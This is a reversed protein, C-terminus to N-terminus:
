RLERASEAHGPLSHADDDPLLVIFRAGGDPRNECRITGGHVAVLGRCITLGLGMGGASTSTRHFKEFIRGEQGPTVGPGRDAVEIELASPGKRALIEIPADAPTHKVVNELLNVLVQRFLVPDVSMMAADASIRVQVNRAGLLEDVRNLASGIVEETPIREKRASLIGAELSTMDILNGLLRNLHNAEQSITKLYEDRRAPSLADRGERLATAAGEVISLPTRLDHSVSSLLANRLRENELVELHAKLAKQSLRTREVALAIQSAFADLMALAFDDATPEASVPPLVVLVGLVSQSCRLPRIYEASREALRGAQIDRGELIELARHRVAANLEVKAEYAGVDIGQSEPLWVIAQGGFAESVHQCATNLIDAISSHKSLGESLSLLQRTGFESRQASSTERRSRAGFYSIVYAVLLMMAYTSLYHEDVDSFSYYPLTFFFDYAAVSLIATPIAAWYGFWTSTMVVGLLYCMVIDPSRDRLLGSAVVTAGAVTLASGVLAVLRRRILRRRVPEKPNIWLRLM